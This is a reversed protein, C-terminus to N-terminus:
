NNQRSESKLLRKRRVLDIQILMPKSCHFAHVKSSHVSLLQPSLLEVESVFNLVGQNKTGRSVENRCRQM